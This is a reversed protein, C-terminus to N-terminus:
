KKKNFGINYKPQIQLYRVVKFSAYFLLKIEFIFTVNAEKFM